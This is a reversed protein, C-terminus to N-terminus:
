QVCAKAFNEVIPIYDCIIITLDDDQRGSWQLVASIISNAAHEPSLGQTKRLMDWLSQQGFFDGAANCADLIGGTYLVIRDGAQLKHVATSYSASDFAALILGNEEIETVYGDKLLM